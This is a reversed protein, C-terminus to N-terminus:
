LPSPLDSMRHCFVLPWAEIQSIFPVVGVKSPSTPLLGPAVQCIWAAEQGGVSGRPGLPLSPPYVAIPAVFPRRLSKPLRAPPKFCAAEFTVHNDSGRAEALGSVKSIERLPVICWWDEAAWIGSLGAAGAGIATVRGSPLRRSNAPGTVPASIAAAIPGPRAFAAIATRISPLGRSRAVSTSRSAATAIMVRSIGSPTSTKRWSAAWTM